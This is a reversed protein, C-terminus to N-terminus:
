TSIRHYLDKKRRKIVYLFPLSIISFIFLSSIFLICSFFYLFERPSTLIFGMGESDEACWLYGKSKSIVFSSSAWVDSNTDYYMNFTIQDRIESPFSPLPVIPESTIEIRNPNLSTIKGSPNCEPVPGSLKRSSDAKYVYLGEGDIYEFRTNSQGSQEVQRWSDKLSISDASFIEYYIIPILTLFLSLGFISVLVRRTLPNGFLKIYVLGIILELALIILLGILFDIM